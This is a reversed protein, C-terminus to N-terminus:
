LSTDGTRAFKKNLSLIEEKLIDTLQGPRMRWRWNAGATGPMNMRADSGLRLHDQMPIVATDADCAFAAEILAKCIDADQNIKLYDAAFRREADDAKQWWGRATDNDHTGTYVVTSQTIRHPLHANTEGSDFAFLLVKMGPYACQKLLRKVRSTVAGLDEAVIPFSSIERSLAEFLARGPGKHLKGYKATPAGWPVAYYNAFGIFHDIRMMDFYDSMARMRRIWWAYGTKKHVRWKYIPNGWLQGDQSFYDPPVGAVCAPRRQEDLEFLRPEAWTDASDMAVYIPMDGFITIGNKNAYVKLAFWQKFFLYQVFSYFAIDKEMEGAYRAVAEPKRFRIADDPWDSWPRGGFRDKLSRFLAYDFLWHTKDSFDAASDKLSTDAREYATRLIKCRTQHLYAFDVAEIDKGCHLQSLDAENLLGEDKLRDLDIFYPNGAYTSFSQFPSDAYGTEGIPLIQWIRTGTAKLFDVFQYASAGMTGIGYPSPLSSIHMLIGSSREM